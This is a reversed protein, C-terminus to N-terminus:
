TLGRHALYEHNVFNQLASLDNM